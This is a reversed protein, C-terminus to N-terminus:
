EDRGVIRLLELEKKAQKLAEEQKYVTAAWAVPLFAGFVWGEGIREVFEADELTALHCMVTGHKEGLDSSITKASVPEAKNALYRLIDTTLKVASIRRYSCTKAM